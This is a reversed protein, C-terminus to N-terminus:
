DSGGGGGGSGCSSSSDSSYSSSSDYSSHSSSHCSHSYDSSGSYNYNSSASSLTSKSPIDDYVDYTTDTDISRYSVRGSNNKVVSLPKQSNYTYNTYRDKRSESFASMALDWEKTEKALKEKNKLKRLDIIYALGVVVGIVVILIILFEM